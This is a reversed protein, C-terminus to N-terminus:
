IFLECDRKILEAVFDVAKPLNNLDIKWNKSQGKKVKDFVQECMERVSPLSQLYKVTESEPQMRGFFEHETRGFIQCYVLLIRYNALSAVSFRLGLWPKNM